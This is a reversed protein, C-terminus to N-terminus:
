PAVTNLFAIDMRHLIVSTSISMRLMIKRFFQGADMDVEKSRCRVHILKISLLTASPIIHM